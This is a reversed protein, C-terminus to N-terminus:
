ESFIQPLNRAAWITLFKKVQSSGKIIAITLFTLSPNDAAKPKGDITPIRGGHTGTTSNERRFLNPLHSLKKQPSGNMAILHCAYRSLQDDLIERESIANGSSECSEKTKEILKHLDTNKVTNM